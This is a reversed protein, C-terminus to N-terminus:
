GAVEEACKPCRYGYIANGILLPEMSTACRPCPAGAQRDFTTEAREKEERTERRTIRDWEAWILAAAIVLRRKVEHKERKDWEPWPFSQDDDWDPDTVTADTGHIAYAAGAKALEGWEHRDDHGATWQEKEIQRKRENIVLSGFESLDIM